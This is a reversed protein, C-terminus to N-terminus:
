GRYVDKRHEISRVAITTENFQYVIRYDGVRHSRFRKLPGQLQKGLLPNVSLDFLAEKIAHIAHSPLSRQAKDAPRSLQVNKQPPM